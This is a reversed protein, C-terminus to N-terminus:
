LLLADLGDEPEYRDNHWRLRTPGPLVRGAVSHCRDGPYCVIQVGDEVLAEPQIRPPKRSRAQALVDAVTRHRALHALSMIQPPALEIAGDWYARLAAAPAIWVSSTAEHADHRPSQGPPVAAVFFRADFHKRARVSARPTVWRSWPALQTSALPLQQTRLTQAFSQDAPRAELVAIAGSTLSAFVVGAEEFVERMAAVYLAAAEPAGLDAEGLAAHLEPVPQELWDILQLDQPELKGGPFVYAGGLVDSLGHRELLFVEMGEPADRLM